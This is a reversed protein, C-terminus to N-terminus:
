SHYNFYKVLCDRDLIDITRETFKRRVEQRVELSNGAFEWHVGLSSEALERYIMQTKSESGDDEKRRIAIM